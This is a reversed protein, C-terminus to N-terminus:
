PQCPTCRARKSYKYLRKRLTKGFNRPGIQDLSSGFAVLGFRSVRGYTPKLGYVGCLSAPQRISGGTDSGLALPVLRASVAAASGGSSGGPTKKLDWPNFTKSLASNETSSGMAFEDMNTKGVIIADEQELLRVVTADFPARFNTLFKSACTTIEGKININDKIAVPVGALRGLALGQKKKEDLELAKKLARERYICLFAGVSPNLKEIRDLFYTTIEVSSAKGTVFLDRIQSCSLTHM